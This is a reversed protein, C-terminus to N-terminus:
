LREKQQLELVRGGNTVIQGDQFKTGAHFCYYGDKGKFTKLDMCQIGKRIKVPYGESAFSWM